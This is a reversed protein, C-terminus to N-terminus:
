RLYSDSQWNTLVETGRLLGKFLVPRNPEVHKDNFDVPLPARTLEEVMLPPMHAGLPQLHGRPPEEAASVAALLLLCVTVGVLM